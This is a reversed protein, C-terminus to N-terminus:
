KRKVTPISQNLQQSGGPAITLWKWEGEKLLRCLYLIQGTHYATHALSRQIARIVSMSEGRITISKDLDEPRVAGLEDYLIKWASQWAQMLSSRSDGPQIVFENDRDRDPKEGDETLFHTWRSRLNGAVHKVTIAVSHSRPGLVQFFAKDDGLQALAANAWQEHQQYTITTEKLYTTRWPDM